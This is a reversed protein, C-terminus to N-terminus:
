SEGVQGPTIQDKYKELEDEFEKLENKKMLINDMINSIEALRELRLKTETNLSEEFLLDEELMQEPTLEQIDFQKLFEVIQNGQTVLKTIITRNDANIDEIHEIKSNLDKLLNEIRGVSLSKNAM